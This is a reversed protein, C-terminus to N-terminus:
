SSPMFKYGSLSKMMTKKWIVVKLFYYSLLWINSGKYVASTQDYSVSQAEESVIINVWLSKGLNQLSSWDDASAKTLWCDRDSMSIVM